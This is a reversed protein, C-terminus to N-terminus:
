ICLKKMKNIEYGVGIKGKHVFTIEGVEDLEDMLITGLGLHLPEM